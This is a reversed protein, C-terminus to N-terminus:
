STTASPARSAAIAQPMTGGSLAKVPNLSSMTIMTADARTTLAATPREPMTSSIIRGKMGCMFVVLECTPMRTLTTVTSDAKMFFIPARAIKMGIANWIERRVPLGAERRSIGRDKPDSSPPSAVSTPVEGLMMTDRMRSSMTPSGNVINSKAGTPMPSATTPM